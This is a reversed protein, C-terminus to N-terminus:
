FSFGIEWKKKFVLFGPWVPNIMGSLLLGRSSRLPDVERMDNDGSDDANSSMVGTCVFGEM